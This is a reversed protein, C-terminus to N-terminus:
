VARREAEVQRKERKITSPTCTRDSRAEETEYAGDMGGRVAAAAAGGEDGNDDFPARWTFLKYLEAGLSHLDEEASQRRGRGDDDDDSPLQRM